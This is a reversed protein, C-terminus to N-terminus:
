AFPLEDSPDFSPVLDSKNSLVELEKLYETGAQALDRFKKKSVAWDVASKIKDSTLQKLPIGKDNGFPMIFDGPSVPHTPKKDLNPYLTDAVNAVTKPVYNYGTDLTPKIELTEKDADDMDVVPICFLQILLYKFAATMAKNLSKDSSDIGEGYVVMDLSTGDSSTAKYNVKVVTHIQPTGKSSVGKTEWRELVNPVFFVGNKALAPHVANYVDDISRFKYNGHQNFGSKGVSGIDIMVQSLAEAINKM